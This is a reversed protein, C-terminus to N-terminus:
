IIRRLACSVTGIAQGVPLADVHEREVVGDLANGAIEKLHM